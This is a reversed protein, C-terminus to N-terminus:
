KLNHTDCESRCFYKKNKYISDTKKKKHVGLKMTAAMNQEEQILARGLDKSKALKKQGELCPGLHNPEVRLQPLVM